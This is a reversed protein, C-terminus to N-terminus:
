GREAEALWGFVRFVLPRRELNYTDSEAVAQNIREWAQAFRVMKPTSSPAANLRKGLWENITDLFVALPRSEASGLTDGLAHLAMPDFTPLRDLLAVLRSRLALSPGELLSIARGVSGECVAAATRLAPEIEDRGLARALALVVDKEALARLTLRRCRSRITPLLRAPTASTLLLLSNAPPEELIKLLANAGPGRLDDAPDIICIRWGGESATSGFFSVTRRIQDVTIINRLKGTDGVTRELALLNGHGQAAVRSAVRHDPALALSSASQVTQAEPDPYALVFRAMRYALTAKGIGSPGGILWAHPIRGGRYAELLVKEAEGHGFLVTTTRPHPVENEVDDDADTKGVNV